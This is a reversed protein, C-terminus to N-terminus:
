HRNNRFYGHIRRRTEEQEPTLKFDPFTLTGRGMERFPGNPKGDPGLPAISVVGRHETFGEPVRSAERVDALVDHNPDDWPTTVKIDLADRLAPNIPGGKAYEIPEDDVSVIEDGRLGYVGGELIKRVTAKAAGRLVGKAIEELLDPDINAAEDIIVMGRAPELDEPRIEEMLGTGSARDLEDAYDVTSIEEGAGKVVSAFSDIRPDQAALRAMEKHAEILACKADEEAGDFTDVTRLVKGAKDRLKSTVRYRKM